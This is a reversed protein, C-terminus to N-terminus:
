YIERHPLSQSCSLPFYFRQSFLCSQLLDCEVSICDSSLSVKSYYTEALTLSLHLKEPVSLSDTNRSGLIFTFVINTKITQLYSFFCCSNQPVPMTKAGIQGTFAVFINHGKLKTPSDTTWKLFQLTSMMDGHSEWSNCGMEGNFCCQFCNCGDCVKSKETGGMCQRTEWKM